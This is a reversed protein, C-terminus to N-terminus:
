YEDLARKLISLQNYLKSPLTTGGCSYTHTVSEEIELQKKDRVKIQVEIQGESREPLSFVVEFEKFAIEIWVESDKLGLKFGIIEGEINRHSHFDIRNFKAVYEEIGEGSKVIFTKSETLNPTIENKLGFELKTIVVKVNGEEGENVSEVIYMKGNKDKRNLPFNREEGQNDTFQVKKGSADNICNVSVWRTEDAGGVIKKKSRKVVNKKSKQGRKSRRIQSKKQFSKRSIRKNLLKKKLSPM